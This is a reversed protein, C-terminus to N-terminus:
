TAIRGTGLRFLDHPDVRSKIAKLREASGGFFQRAREGEQPSLLNSYGGTLAIAGLSTSVTDSWAVHGSAQENTAGDWASIIEIVFHPTRLAFATAMPYTNTAVGHFDHVVMASFPSTFNHAASIFIDAM